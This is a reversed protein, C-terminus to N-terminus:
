AGPPEHDYCEMLTRLAKKRDNRGYAVGDVVIVPALSCCGLCHVEELTIAGDPTTAGPQIGLVQTLVDRIGKGGGVHCATGLCVQVTHRGRPADTFQRYFSAVGHVRTPPVGLEDAVRELADPPLYGYAKQVQQLLPILKAEHEAPLGRFLRAQWGREKAM